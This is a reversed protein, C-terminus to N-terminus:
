AGGGVGRRQRSLCVHYLPGRSQHYGLQLPPQGRGAAARRKTEDRHDADGQQAAGAGGAATAGYEAAVGGHATRAKRCAAGRSDGGHQQRRRGLHHRSERHARQRVHATRCNASASVLLAAHRYHGCQASRREPHGGARPARHRFLAGGRSRHRGCYGTTTDRDGVAAAANDGIRRYWGHAGNPCWRNSSNQGPLPRPRHMAWDNPDRQVRCRRATERWSPAHPGRPAM